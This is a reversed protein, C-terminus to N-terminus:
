EAVTALRQSVITTFSLRPSLRQLPGLYWVSMLIRCEQQFAWSLPIGSVTAQLIRMNIHGKARTKRAYHSFPMTPVYCPHVHPGIPPIMKPAIVTNM